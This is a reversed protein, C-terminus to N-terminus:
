AALPKCSVAAGLAWYAHSAASDLYCYFAGVSVGYNCAGGRSAYTTASDNFWLGDCYYTSSTGSAAVPTMGYESFRMESCYGGNTGTHATVGTALYGTGDTNYATATSGDNTSYTLKVKEVGSVVIHGAYRRWQNGWWNEMGFVKVGYTTANSGWFLGKTDMTGTALMNSASSSQSRRGEGFVSATDMSKGVLMLLFNILTVDSYIETYWLVDSGSNNAKAASVEGSASLASDLYTYDLGSISRLKSNVVGGNYIATYFHPVLVGQNNINSWAHYTSDVQRNAIFVSGSKSDSDPEVKWWIEPWEMMANGAYDPNAVDSATGDVKKTYDSPDLYYDVLGDYRLMCPKPMFFADKWSGYDFVDNTYDMKAPTMGVADKLYTIMASPNSEAGNVHFGYVTSKGTIAGAIEKLADIMKLGTEDLMIPKTVEAM